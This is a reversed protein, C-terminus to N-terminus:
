MGSLIETRRTSSWLRTRRPNRRMRSVLGVDLDRTFGGITHFRNAQRVFELGVHHHHIAGHRVHVTQKGGPLNELLLWLGQHEHEARQQLPTRHEGTPEIKSTGTRYGSGIAGVVIGGQIQQVGQHALRQEYRIARRPM